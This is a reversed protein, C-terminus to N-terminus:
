KGPRGYYEEVCPIDAVVELVSPPASNNGNVPQGPDPNHDSGIENDRRSTYLLSREFSQVRWIYYRSIYLDEGGPPSPFDAPPASMYVGYSQVHRM